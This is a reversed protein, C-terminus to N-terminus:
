LMSTKLYSVSKKKKLSLLISFTTDKYISLPSSFLIYIGNFNIVTLSNLHISRILMKMINLVKNLIRDHTEM